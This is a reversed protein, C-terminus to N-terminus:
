HGLTTLLDKMKKLSKFHEDKEMSSLYKQIVYIKDNGSADALAKVCGGYNNLFINKLQMNKLKLICTKKSKSGFNKKNSSYFDQNEKDFSNFSAYTCKHVLLAAEM